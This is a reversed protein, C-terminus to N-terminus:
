TTEAESGETQEQRPMGPSQQLIPTINHWEEMGAGRGGGTILEGDKQLYIGDKSYGVCRLMIEAGVKQGQVERVEAVVQESQGVTPKMSNELCPLGHVKGRGPITQEWIEIAPGRKQHRSSGPRQEFTLRRQGGLRVGRGRHQCRM